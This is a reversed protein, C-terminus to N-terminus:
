RGRYQPSVPLSPSDFKRSQCPFRSPTEGVWTGKTARAHSTAQWDADGTAYGEGSHRDTLGLDNKERM